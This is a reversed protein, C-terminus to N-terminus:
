EHPAELQSQSVYVGHTRLCVMAAVVCVHLHEHGTLGEIGAFLMVETGNYSLVFSGGLPTSANQTVAVAAQKMTGQMPTAQTALMVAQNGMSVPFTVVWKYGVQSQVVVAVPQAVSISAQLLGCYTSVYPNCRHLMSFSDPAEPM